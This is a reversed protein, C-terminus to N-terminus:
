LAKKFQLVLAISAALAVPIAAAFFEPLNITSALPAILSQILNFSIALMLGIFIRAGTSSQRLPGFIFTIALWILALSLVPQLVRQWFQLRFNDDSLQQASLYNSYEFLKFVSLKADPSTLLWLLDPTLSTDWPESQGSFENQWAAGRQNTYRALGNFQWDGADTLSIADFSDYIMADTLTDYKVSFGAAVSGDKKVAKFFYYTDQDRHWVGYQTSGQAAAVNRLEYGQQDLKPVLSEGIGFALILWVVPGYLTRAIIKGKSLGTSEIIVLERHDAMTGFAFLVGILCIYPFFAYLRGPTTLTIFWFAQQAQYAGDLRYNLENLLAMVYDILGIAVLTVFIAMFMSKFIYKSLIM